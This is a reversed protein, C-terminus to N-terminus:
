RGTETNNIVENIAQKAELAREKMESQDIKDRVIDRLKKKEEEEGDDDKKIKAKIKQYTQFAEKSRTFRGKDSDPHHQDKDPDKGDM